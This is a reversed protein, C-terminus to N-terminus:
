RGAAHSWTEFLPPRGVIDAGKADNLNVEILHMEETRLPKATYRLGNAELRAAASKFKTHYSM